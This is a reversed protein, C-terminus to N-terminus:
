NKLAQFDRVGAKTIVFHCSGPCLYPSKTLSIKRVVTEITMRSGKDRKPRDIHKINTREVLLRSTIAHSWSEGLAPAYFSSDQSVVKTTMQNTTVISLNNKSAMSNLTQSISNLLRTRLAMNEFDQRFHFAISDIVVLRISSHRSLIKPLSLITALLESHDHVRCYHIKSLLSELSLSSLASAQRERLEPESKLTSVRHLHHLVAELMDKIREVAFSGETDIYLCEGGLGGFLPPICVDIALQMALQTKGSGPRGCLETVQGVTIGGGLLKDLASCYTVIHRGLVRSEDLLALASKGMETRPRKVSREERRDAEVLRSCGGDDQEGFAARKIEEVLPLVKRPDMGLENALQVPQADMV